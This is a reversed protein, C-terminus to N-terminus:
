TCACVGLTATALASDYPDAFNRVLDFYAFGRVFLAQGTVDDWITQNTSDRIVKKIQDLISNSYFISTFPINWDLRNVEGGCVDKGWIYSYRETPTASLWSQYDIIYYEIYDLFCFDLFM